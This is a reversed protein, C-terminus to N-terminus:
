AGIATRRASKCGGFRSSARGGSHYAGARRVPAQRDAGRRRRACAAGRGASRALIQERVHQERAERLAHFTTSYRRSKTLCHGPTASRIRPVVALRRDDLCPSPRRAHLGRPPLRACARARAARRGPARRHPPPLGGVHETSKTAYKALYGAVERRLEGTTSRAFTSSTAGICSGPGSPSTPYRRACRMSPPASPTSSCSSTSGPSTTAQGRARPVQADRPRAADRRAPARPRLRQYEAVKIYSVRVLEACGGEPDHRHSPRAPAAPLDDHAAVARRPPQELRGRRPPRLVGGVSRSAWARTTTTTCRAAPCGPRRAPLDARRPAAPLSAAGGNGDSEAPTSSARLQAGHADRVVAAHGAVSDPVGKGARLAPPSLTTPTEPPLAGRM